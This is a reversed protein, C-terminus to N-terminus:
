QHDQWRVVPEHTVQQHILSGLFVNALINRDGLAFSHFSNQVVLTMLVLLPKGVQPSESLTQHALGLQEHRTGIDFDTGLIGPGPHQASKLM